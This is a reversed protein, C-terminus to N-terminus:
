KIMQTNIYYETTCQVTKWNEGTTLIESWTGNFSCIWLCSFEGSPASDSQFESDPVNPELKGVIYFKGPTKVTITGEGCDLPPPHPRPSRRTQGPRGGHLDAPDGSSLGAAPTHTHGSRDEGTSPPRKRGTGAANSVNHRTLPPPPAPGSRVLSSLVTVTVSCVLLVSVGSSSGKAKVHM